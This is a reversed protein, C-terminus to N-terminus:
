YFMGPSVGWDMTWLWRVKDQVEASNWGSGAFIDLGECFMGSAERGTGLEADWILGDQHDSCGQHRVRPRPSWLHEPNIHM